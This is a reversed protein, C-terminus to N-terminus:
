GKKAPVPPKPAGPKFNEIEHFNIKREQDMALNSLIVTTSDQLGVELDAKPRRGTKCSVFFEELEVDVPNRDEEPVMIGKSYLWRRAFKAERALFSDSAAASDKPLLLPFGKNAAATTMTAGAKFAEKKEGPKTVQAASIPKPERYWIGIAPNRDDGITIEICGATGMIVEGFEVRQAQLLDLHSNTSISSYMLKRGKPYGYILQINDFVDRGDKYYDIGGVGLVYEPHSGFMWDAVDIQHSALEATNGGAYERYMRWNTKRELKPDAVPKRQNSNRHWQARIHTVDGLLGQQIMQKATQYFLSYRRQLGVQLIQKPRSNSLARLLHVEEPKHVLSKECFVHKGAELVDRTIPFHMYLPTVVLVADIDKRALLERYDKYTAPNNGATEVGQKLREDWDDCLAVCRGNDVAKLHKLLYTGRSGTGIMGYAVQDNAARVTNIGPFGDVTQAAAAVATVATATKVFDRRSVAQDKSM